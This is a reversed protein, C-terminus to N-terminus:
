CNKDTGVCNHICSYLNSKQIYNLMCITKNFIHIIHYIYILFIIFLYTPVEQKKPKETEISAQIHVWKKGTPNNESIESRFYLHRDLGM